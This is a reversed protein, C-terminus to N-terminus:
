LFFEDPSPYADLFLVNRKHMCVIILYAWWFSRNYICIYIYVPHGLLRAGDLNRCFVSKNIVTM